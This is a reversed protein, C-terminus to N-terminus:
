PILSRLGLWSASVAAALLWAGLAPLTYGALAPRYIAAWAFASVPLLGLLPGAVLFLQAPGPPAGPIAKGLFALGGAAASLGALAGAVAAGALICLAPLFIELLPHLWNNRSAGRRGRQGAPLPHPHPSVWGTRRIAGELLTRWGAELGGQVGAPAGPRGTGRVRQM